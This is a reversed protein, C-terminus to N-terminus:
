QGFEIRYALSHPLGAALIRSQSREVNYRVRFTEVIMQEDDYIVVCSRADGDRPQGVSGVNVLYKRKKSLKVKPKRTYGVSDGSFYVVPVHSHGIFCVKGQMAEFCLLADLDTYIYHWAGPADPTAHVLTGYDMEVKLPLNMLFIRDSESLQGSTWEVAEKADKNFNAISTKGVAAADHNGPVCLCEKERVRAICESPNAGYGVIDGLCVYQDVKQEELFGLIEELAVLNGHIDAMVAIRV